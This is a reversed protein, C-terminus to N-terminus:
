HVTASERLMMEDIFKKAHAPTSFWLTKSESYNHDYLYLTIHVDNGDLVFTLRRQHNNHEYTNNM